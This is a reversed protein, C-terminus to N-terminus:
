PRAVGPLVVEELPVGLWAIPQRPRRPRAIRAEEAFSLKKWDRGMLQAIAVDTAVPDTSALIRRM